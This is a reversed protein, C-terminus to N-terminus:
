GFRFTFHMGSNFGPHGGNMQQEDLDQGNDYATRKQEDSLVEHAEAIERFQAEAEM